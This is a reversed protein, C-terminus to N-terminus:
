FPVEIRVTTGHGPHSAIKLSAGMYEAREEMSMMGLSSKRSSLRADSVDFGIGNDIISMSLRSTSFKLKILTNNAKAHKRINNLAEQAIRFTGLKIAEPLGPETGEVEFDIKLSDIKGIDEAAQQLAALLGMDELVSPRLEHSYRRVEEVAHGADKELFRLKQILETDHIKGSKLLSDLQIKLIILFQATNDHLEYAIRKREEEQAQTIRRAYRKLQKNARTIKNRSRLLAERARKRNTIDHSVVVGGIMSGDSSNVPAASFSRSRLRGTRTHRIVEEGRVSKGKLALYFATEELRCPTRDVKLIEVSDLINDIRLTDTSKLGLGTRAAQNLPTINGERDIFWVEDDISGLIAQMRDVLVRYREQIESLESTCDEVKQALSNREGAVSDERQKHELAASYLETVTSMLHLDDETFSTRSGTGFSLTGLTKGKVRVPHSAYAQIGLSRVFAAREDGNHQINELVIRSGDRAVSGCVAEGFQLFEITHVISEPIGASANLKLKGCNEDLIYNCFCDCGLHAMVKGAIESVITEPSFSSLLAAGAESLISLGAYKLTLAEGALGKVPNINRVTDAGSRCFENHPLRDSHFDPSPGKEGKSTM